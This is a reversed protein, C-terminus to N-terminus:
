QCIESVTKSSFEDLGFILYWIHNWDFFEFPHTKWYFSGHSAGSNFFRFIYEYNKISLNELLVAQTVDWFQFFSFLYEHNKISSNELLVAQTVGWFQFKLFFIPHTKWYFPRHSSGSFSFKLFFEPHTKWSKGILTLIVTIGSNGCTWFPRYMGGNTLRGSTIKVSAQIKNSNPNWLPM